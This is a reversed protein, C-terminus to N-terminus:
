VVVVEDIINGEVGDYGTMQRPTIKIRELAHKQAFCSDIVGYSQCGTDILTRAFCIGNILTSIMFSPVDM